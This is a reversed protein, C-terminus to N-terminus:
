LWAPANSSWYVELQPFPNFPLPPFNTLQMSAFTGHAPVSEPSLLQWDTPQARLLASAGVVL